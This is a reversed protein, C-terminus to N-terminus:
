SCSGRRPAWWWLAFLAQVDGLLHKCTGAASGAHAMAAKASAEAADRAMADLREQLARQRALREAAAKAEEEAIRERALVRAQAWVQSLIRRVM